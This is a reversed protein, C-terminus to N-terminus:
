QLAVIGVVVLRALFAAVMQWMVGMSAGLGAAIIVEITGPMSSVHSPTAVQARRNWGYGGVGPIGSPLPLTRGRLTAVCSSSEYTDTRSM